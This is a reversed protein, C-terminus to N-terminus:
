PETLISWLIQATPEYYDLLPGLLWLNVFAGLSLWPGFPIARSSKRFLTALVGVLALITALFFTFFVSWFGMVSAIAAMIYIDGTGFAEKGFALTGLIRVTWGLAAAFVMAAVAQSAAEVHEIWNPATATRGLLETFGANLKQTSQFYILLGGGVLIAPLFWAIERLAMPRAEDRESEIEEVIQDDSERRVLSVFILLLMIVVCAVLGRVEGTELRWHSTQKPASLQWIVLGLIVAAFTMIVLPRFRQNASELYATAGTDPEEQMKGNETHDADLDGQKSKLLATGILVTLFWAAGMAIGIVCMSSPLLDLTQYKESAAASATETLAVAKSPMGWVAHCLVGLIMTFVSLRIDITYSEIDMASTALLGAFLALYAIAMPWDQGPQQIGPLVRGVFMADWIMVFLLATACEILPYVISIPTRCDYCRGRLWLWGIVPLNHYPRIRKKCHPCFSWAPKTVSMENPLRFIVVNLFSGVIAGFVAAM